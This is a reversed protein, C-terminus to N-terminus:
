VCCLFIKKWPTESRQLLLTNIGLKLLLKEFRRKKLRFTYVFFYNNTLVLLAFRHYSFNAFPWSKREAEFSTYREFIRTTKSFMSSSVFRILRLMSVYLWQITYSVWTQKLNKEHQNHQRVRKRCLVTSYKRYMKNGIESSNKM